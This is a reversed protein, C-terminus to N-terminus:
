LGGDFVFRKAPNDNRMALNHKRVKGDAFRIEYPVFWGPYPKAQFPEGLTIIELGGLYQKIEDTFPVPSLRAVEDWDRKSCAEFFAQAAERPTMKEYKENDPLRQPEQHWVVDAPAQLEFKSDEIAPNYEIKAVELVLVEEGGSQVYFKANVLRGTARDFTYERRTDSSDLFKNKL